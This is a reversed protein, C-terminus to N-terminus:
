LRETLWLWDFSQGSGGTFIQYICGQRHKTHPKWTPRKSETSYSQENSRQGQSNKDATTVQAMNWDILWDVLKNADICCLIMLSYFLLRYSAIGYNWRFEGNLASIDCWSFYIDVSLLSCVAPCVSPRVFLGFVRHGRGVMTPPPIFITCCRTTPEACFHSLFASCIVTSIISTDALTAVSM